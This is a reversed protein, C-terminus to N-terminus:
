VVICGTISNTKINGTNADIILPLFQQCSENAVNEPRTVMFEVVPQITTWLETIKQAM